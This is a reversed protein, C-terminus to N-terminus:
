PWGAAILISDFLRWLRLRVLTVLAGGRQGLGGLLPSRLVMPAHALISLPMALARLVYYFRGFKRSRYIGFSERNIRRWKDRLQAFTRRAPHGVIADGAFGIRYGAARARHCWDMDESVQTRFGGVREFLSRACFLNATVSFGKLVVYAKNNFAFVKEFAESPSVNAPDEVLVQMQGGVVDYRQLAEVGARLWGPDPRCDADTFALVDATSLAAAGNRTPGAGKQEIVVVRAREAVAALVAALGIPSNNDAVIIEYRGAPYSQQCLAELCLALGTLDQYHPVIVSVLPLVRGGGSTSPAEQRRELPEDMKPM